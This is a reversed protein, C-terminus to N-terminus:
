GREGRDANKSKARAGRVPRDADAEADRQRIRALASQDVGPARPPVDADPDFALPGGDPSPPPQVELAMFGASAHLDTVTVIEPEDAPQRYRYLPPSMVVGQRFEALNVPATFRAVARDAPLLSFKTKETEPWINTRLTKEMKESDDQMEQPSKPFSSSWSTLTLCFLVFLVTVGMGVKEGNRLFFGKYDFGKINAILNKM